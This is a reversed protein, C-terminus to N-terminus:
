KGATAAKVAEEHRAGALINPLSYNGEHCAHEYMQKGTRYWSFEGRWPATYTKPDDVTFQYLLEKDSVPTFRETVKAAGSVLFVPGIRFSDSDPLGITEVVLTDGEWRGISDGSWPRIHAPLHARAGIRVIRVGTSEMWIAVEDRTQVITYHANYRGPLMPVSGSGSGGTLCREPSPRTEPGDMAALYPATPTITRESAEFRSSWGWVPAVPYM